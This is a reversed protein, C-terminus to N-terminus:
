FMPSTEHVSLDAKSPNMLDLANASNRDIIFVFRTSSIGGIMPFTVSNINYLLTDNRYDSSSEPMM